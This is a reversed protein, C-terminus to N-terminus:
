NRKVLKDGSGFISDLVVQESTGMLMHAKGTLHNVFFAVPVGPAGQEGSNKFAAFMYALNTKLDSITKTDAAVPTISKDEMHDRFLKVADKSQLMAALTNQASEDQGLALSPIWKISYGMDIYKRTLNYSKKCYPCRPDFIIYVTDEIPGSGEKIGALSDIVKIPKPIEGTFKGDLMGVINQGTQAHGEGNAVQQTVASAAKANNAVLDPTIFQDSLNRGTASDWVIGSIVAKSDATTYMIVQKGDRELTWATLGGVGLDKSSVVKGYKTISAPASVNDKRTWLGVAVGLVAVGALLALTKNSVAFKGIKM